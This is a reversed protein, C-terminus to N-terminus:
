SFTLMEASSKNDHQLNHPIPHTVLTDKNQLLKIVRRWHLCLLPNNYDYHRNTQEWFEVLGIFMLVTKFNHCYKYSMTATECNESSTQYCFLESFCMKEQKSAIVTSDCGSIFYLTLLPQPLMLSARLKRGATVKM